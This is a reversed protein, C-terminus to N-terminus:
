FSIRIVAKNKLETMWATYKQRMKIQELQRRASNRESESYETKDQSRSGSSKPEPRSQPAAAVTTLLLVAQGGNLPESIQGPTLQRAVAQLQPQLEGVTLNNGPDGGSDAGPGQSYKGAAEAFSLGGEIEAKIQRAKAMVKNAQAPSSALFIMLVRDNESSGMGPLLASEARPGEGRLYATIESETIVIRNMIRLGLIKNKLLETKLGARFAAPTTGSKVLSAKFQDATLKNDEIISQVAEDIEQESVMIGQRKADQSILENEILMGLVEKQVDGGQQTIADRQAQPVTKIFAELESLTIIERNVQAVIRDTVTAALAAPALWLAALALCVASLGWPGTKKEIM